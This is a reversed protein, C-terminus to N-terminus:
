PVIIRCWTNSLYRDHFHYNYSLMKYGLTLSFAYSMLGWPCLFFCYDVWNQPFNKDGVVGPDYIYLKSFYFTSLVKTTIHLDM